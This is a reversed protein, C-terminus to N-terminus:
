RPFGESLDRFKPNIARILAMKKERRWGKIQKEQEIASRIDGFPEFYVLRKVEYEKTFGPLLKRRHESM